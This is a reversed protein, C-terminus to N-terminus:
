RSCGIVIDKYKNFRSNQQYELWKQGQVLELCFNLTKVTEEKRRKRCTCNKKHINMRDKNDFEMNCVKCKFIEHDDKTKYLKEKFKFLNSIKSRAKDKSM